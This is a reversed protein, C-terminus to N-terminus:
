SRAIVIAIVFVAAVVVVVVPCDLIPAQKTIRHILSEQTMRM